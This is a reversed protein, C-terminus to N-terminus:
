AFINEAAAPQEVEVYELDPFRAKFAEECAEQRKNDNNGLDSREYGILTEKILDVKEDGINGQLWMKFVYGALDNDQARLGDKEAEYNDPTADEDFKYGECSEFEMEFTGDVHHVVFTGSEQDMTLTTNTTAVVEQCDARAVPAMEEICGCMPIEGEILPDETLSEVYGRQYMHDYLSVYFLNNWKGKNQIYNSEEGWSIGHCHLDKETKDGPYPFIDGEHETWCLDTNDGPDERACDKPKCDGNQDFYQRDRHWCCMATHTEPCGNQLSPPAELFRKMLTETYTSNVEVGAQYSVESTPYHENYRPDTGITIYADYGGTKMFRDTTQQFNGTEKNLPGKGDFYVGLDASIGWGVDDGNATAADELAGNCMDTFERLVGDFDSQGMVAKLEDKYDQRCKPDDKTLARRKDKFEDRFKREIITSKCGNPGLDLRFDTWDFCATPLPEDNCESVVTQSAILFIALAATRLM